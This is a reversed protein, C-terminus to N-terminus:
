TLSGIRIAQQPSQKHAQLSVQTRASTAFVHTPRADTAARPRDQQSFDELLISANSGAADNNNLLNRRLNRVPDSSRPFSRPGSPIDINLEVLPPFRPNPAHPMDAQPPIIDQQFMTICKLLSSMGAAAESHGINAKISGLPLTRSEPRRHRFIDGVAGVEAPDGVPTGTGHMEVYGVNDPGVGADRLIRPFLREQAGADSTSISTSNGSHNRGSAAIVGLINDNQAVADELRKLVVAGVFDVRCYKSLCTFPHPYSLINAAGAVAMDIDKAQLSMCALHISATTSACATDLSYTPGEWKFQWALRGPGFAESFAKTTITCKKDTKGHELCYYDDVNFRDPPVDTCIDQKPMIIDWFEELIESEPGRGSMEVITIKDITPSTRDEDIALHQEHYISVKGGSSKLATVLYPTHSSNGMQVIRVADLPGCLNRNHNFIPRDLLNSNTGVIFDVDAQSLNITHQLANIDLPNKPADRVTSCQKVCLELVSPARNSPSTCAGAMRETHAHDLGYDPLLGAM